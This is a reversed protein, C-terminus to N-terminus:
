ASWPVGNGTTPNIKEKIQNALATEIEEVKESGFSNAVWSAVTFEDLDAYPIMDAPQAPQLGISGYAGATYPNGEADLTTSVADITYHVTHVMGDALTREMSAINWRYTVDAM